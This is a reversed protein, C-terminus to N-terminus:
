VTYRVSNGPKPFYRLRAPTNEGAQLALLFDVIGGACRTWYRGKDTSIVIEWEEPDGNVIWYCYDGDTTNAWMLVGGNDPFASYAFEDPFDEQMDELWESNSLNGEFLRLGPTQNRPDLFRIFDGLCLRPYANLIDKFDSPLRTGFQGEVANWDVTSPGADPPDGLIENLRALTESM